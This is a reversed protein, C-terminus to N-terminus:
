PRSWLSKVVAEQGYGNPTADSRDNVDYWRRGDPMGSLGRAGPMQLYGNPDTERIWDYAYRLWHDREEKSLQAFWTIEDWGWVWFGGQGAKGPERSRGYNDFEVLYPLHDCEWGSPTIGGKSKGYIADEYDVRLQAQRPKDPIEEIRLPFSHFDLLLKGNHVLGHHPVHADCLLFHRRANKAAYSRAIELVESWHDLNPDNMNMLEVQGWHIAECGIDIYSAALFFFWLKTEPRSVDPVGANSGWQTARRGKPDLMAEYNFKRTEVPKGLKEFVWPPIDLESVDRSVIEFICAQLIIEPDAAHIKAANAKAQELKKPISPAGGEELGWQHIARGAFKVGCNTMMRINDDLNSHSTLLYMQTMARSLYSRLNEESMRGDFKCDLAFANQALLLILASFWRTM